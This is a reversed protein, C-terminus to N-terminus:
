QLAVAGMLSYYFMTRTDYLGTPEDTPRRHAGGGQALAATGRLCKGRALAPVPRERAPERVIIAIDM